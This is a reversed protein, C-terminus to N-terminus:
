PKDEEKEKKPLIIPKNEDEEKARSKKYARYDDKYDDITVPMGQLCEERQKDVYQDCRQMRKQQETHEIDKAVCGLLSASLALTLLLVNPKKM